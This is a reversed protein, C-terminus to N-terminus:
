VLSSPSYFGKFQKTLGYFQVFGILKSESGVIIFSIMKEKMLMEFLSPLSSFTCSQRSDPDTFGWKFGSLYDYSLLFVIGTSAESIPIIESRNSCYYSTKPLTISGDLFLAEFDTTLHHCATDSFTGTGKLNPCLKAFHIKKDQYHPVQILFETFEQDTRFLCPTNNRWLAWYREFGYEDGINTHLREKSINFFSFTYNLPDITTKSELLYQYGKKPSYCFHEASGSYVPQGLLIILFLLYFFEM